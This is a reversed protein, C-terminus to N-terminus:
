NLKLSYNSNKEFSINAIISKSKACLFNNQIGRVFSTLHSFGFDTPHSLTSKGCFTVAPDNCNAFINLGRLPLSFLYNSVIISVMTIRERKCLYNNGRQFNM